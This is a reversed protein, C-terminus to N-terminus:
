LWGLSVVNLAGDALKKAGDMADDVKQSVARGADEIKEDAWSAAASVAEGAPSDAVWGAAKGTFDSIEGWNDYVYNGLSWAGYGVIATAAVAWGVPNSALAGTVMLGAGAGGALAFGRTAWGRAGDYGGGTYLDVGASLMTMPLFAKGAIRMATSAGPIWALAKSAKGVQFTERALDAAKSAQTFTGFAALDLVAGSGGIFRAAGSFAKLQGTTASVFSALAKTKGFLTWAKWLSTGLAFTGAGTGLATVLDGSLRLREIFAELDTLISAPPSVNALATATVQDVDAVAQLAQGITTATQRAKANLAAQEANRASLATTDGASTMVPPLTRATVSGADSVSFGQLRADSILGLLQSRTASLSTSGTALAARAADLAASVDRGTTVEEAIRSAAADATVGSWSLAATDMASQVARIAGDLDLRVTALSGAATALTAPEWGAVVSVTLTSSM